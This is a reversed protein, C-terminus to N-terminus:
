LRRSSRKWFPPVDKRLIGSGLVLAFRMRPEPTPFLALMKSDSTQRALSGRLGVLMYDQLGSPPGPYGPTLGRVGPSM